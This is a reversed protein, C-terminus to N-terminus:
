VCDIMKMYLLKMINLLHLRNKLFIYSGLDILNLLIEVEITGM